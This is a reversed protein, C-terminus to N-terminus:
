VRDDAPAAPLPGVGAHTFRFQLAAISRSKALSGIHERENGYERLGAELKRVMQAARLPRNQRSDGNADDRQIKELKPAPRHLDGARQKPASTQFIKM